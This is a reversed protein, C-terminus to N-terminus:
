SLRNARRNALPRRMLQYWSPACEEITRVAEAYNLDNPKVAFSFANFPVATVLCDLESGVVSDLSTDALIGIDTLQSVTRSLIERRQTCQRYRLYAIRVDHQHEEVVVWAELFKNFSWGTRRLTDVIM